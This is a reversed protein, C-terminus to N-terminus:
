WLALAMWTAAFHCFKMIKYPLYYKIKYIFVYTYTYIHTHIYIYIYTYTYIQIDTSIGWTKKIWGYITEM